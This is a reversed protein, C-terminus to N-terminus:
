APVIDLQLPVFQQFVQSPVATGDDPFAAAVRCERIRRVGGPEQAEARHSRCDAQACFRRGVACGASRKFSKLRDAVSQIGAFDRHRSLHQGERSCQAIWLDNEDPALGSLLEFGFRHADEASRINSQDVGSM